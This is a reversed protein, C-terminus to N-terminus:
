WVSQLCKSLLNLAFKKYEDVDVSDTFTYLKVGIGLCLKVPPGHIEPFPDGVVWIEHLVDGFFIPSCGGSGLFLERDATPCERLSLKGAWSRSCCGGLVAPKM